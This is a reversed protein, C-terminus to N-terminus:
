ASAGLRAKMKKLLGPYGDKNIIKNFQSKYNNVMSSGETVVDIARWDSGKKQMRYDITVPEERQNAKNAAKTKVIITDGSPEEGLYEVDYKLTSKISKELNKQILQRLVTKFETKQDDTLTAWHTGMSREAMTDYDFLGGLIGAVQKDREASAAGKLKAVVESHRGQVLNQAEGAHAVGPLAVITTLGLALAAVTSLVLTRIRSAM